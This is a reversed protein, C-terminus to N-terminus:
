RKRTPKAARELYGYRRLWDGHEEVIACALEPSLRERWSGARGDVRHTAHMLNVADHQATMRAPDAALGSLETEIRALAAEEVPIRLIAALRKLLARPKKLIDRYDVDLDARAEWFAHARRVKAVQRLVGKDSKAWGMDRISAGIDRLDRRSSFIFNARAALKPDFAHLKVVLDDCAPASPDVDEVWGAHVAGGAHGALLRAANYLWTSGSRPMGAALILRDCRFSFADRPQRGKIGSPRM